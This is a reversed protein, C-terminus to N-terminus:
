YLPTGTSVATGYVVNTAIISPTANTSNSIPYPPAFTPTPPPSNTDSIGSPVLTNAYTKLTTDISPVFWVAGTPIGSVDTGYCTFDEPGTCVGIPSPQPIDRQWAIDDQGGYHAVCAIAEVTVGTDLFLDSSGPWISHWLEKSCTKDSYMRCLTYQNPQISGFTNNDASVNTWCTAQEPAYHPPLRVCPPQWYSGACAYAGGPQNYNATATNTVTATAVADSTAYVSNITTQANPIAFALGCFALNLALLLM